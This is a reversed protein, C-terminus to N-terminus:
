IPHRCDLRLETEGLLRLLLRHHQHKISSRHRLPRTGAVAGVADAGALCEACGGELAVRGLPVMLRRPAPRAHVHLHTRVCLM